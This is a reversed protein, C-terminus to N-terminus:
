PNGSDGATPTDVKTRAKWEHRRLAWWVESIEQASELSLGSLQKVQNIRYRLTNPHIVLGEAAAATNMGTALFADLSSLLERGFGGQALLPALIREVLHDGVSHESAVAVHLTLNELTQPGTRGFELGVQNMQGAVRYSEHIQSLEVAPGIGATPGAGPLDEGTLIGVADGEVVAGFPALRHANGWSLLQQLLQGATEGVAPRARFARYRATAALGFSAAHLGMDPTNVGDRLLRRVFEVRRTEATRAMDLDEDRHAVAYERSILDNVEWLIRVGELQVGPEIGLETAAGIVFERLAQFSLRIALLVHEIPIGSRAREAAVSVDPVREPAKGVTLSRSATEIHQGLSRRLSAPTVAAYTPVKAVIETVIEDALRDANERLLRALDGFAGAMGRVRTERTSESM